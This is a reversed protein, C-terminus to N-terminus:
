DVLEWGGQVKRYTKGGLVKTQPASQQQLLGKPSFSQQPDSVGIAGSRTLFEKRIDQIKKLAIDYSDAARPLMDRFREEEEKGIAGGSRLRGIDDAVKRVAITVPDDSILGGILKSRSDVYKVKQGSKYLNELEDLTDLSSTLGGIKQRLEGSIKQQEPTLNEERKRSAESRLKDIEARTKEQELLGKMKQEPGLEIGGAGRILGKQAMDMQVDEARKAEQAELQAKRLEYDQQELQKKYEREQKKTELDALRDRESRYSILGQKFGEAIGSLLGTDM